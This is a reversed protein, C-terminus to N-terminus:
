DNVEETPKDTEHEEAITSLEEMDDTGSALPLPSTLNGAGVEEPPADWAPASNQVPDLTRKRGASRTTTTDPGTRFITWPQSAPLRYYDVCTRLPIVDKLALAYTKKFRPMDGLHRHQTRTAEFDESTVLACSAITAIGHVQGNCGLWTSGLPAPAGRLEVTKLHNLVLQLWAEKMVM